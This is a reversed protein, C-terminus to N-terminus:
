HVDNLAMTRCYFEITEKLGEDFSKQTSFLGERKLKTIDMAYRWDHGPRDEGYVILSEYPKKGPKIQDMMRCIRQIVVLNSLETEGGINYNEGVTGGFIISLIAKCHDEVYLWDRIHTGNGYVTIPSGNLCALIVKPILKEGHQYPGYNNSCQTLTVPLQYTSFYAKVLHDSAAKSASYPSNPSYPTTETFPEDDASLSGYVEDTSIHHFRCQQKDWKKETLWYQKAAELLSFTGMVNTEIFIEPSAISRDVHSEAAFHVVTDIEFEKLIKGVLSRDVINGKVFLHRKPDPLDELNEMSGAYTLLDLNVIFVESDVSLWHRIFNSGIFGAGGTVLIKKPFYKKM